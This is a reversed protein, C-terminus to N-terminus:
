GVGRGNSMTESVNEVALYVCLVTMALFVSDLIDHGFMIGALGSFIYVLLTGGYLIAPQNPGNVAQRSRTVYLPAAVMALLAALGIMGSKVLQTLAGNHFHSHSVMTGSGRITEREMEDIVNGPGYGLLPREMFLNWGADWMILREGLSGTVNGSAINEYDAIGVSLRQSVTPYMIAALTAACAAAVALHKRSPAPLSGTRYHWMLFLPVALVVPWVSRMGTLVVILAACMAAALFLLPYRQKRRFVANLNILYLIGALVALVGSNGAALEIRDIGNVISINTWVIGALAAFAGTQEVRVLLMEKDARMAAILPLFGLFLGASLIATGWNGGPRAVTALVDTVFPSAFAAATLLVPKANPVQFSRNALHYTGYVIGSIVYVSVFSGVLIGCCTCVCVFLINGTSLSKDDPWFLYKVISKPLSAPM